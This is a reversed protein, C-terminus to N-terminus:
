QEERDEVAPGALPAGAMEGEDGTAIDERQDLLARAEDAQGAPVRIRVDSFDGIDAPFGSSHLSEIEADIGSNLLFGVVVTAEEQTGVIKVIEWEQGTEAM